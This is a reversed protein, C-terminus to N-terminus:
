LEKSGSLDQNGIEPSHCNGALGKTPQAFGGGHAGRFRSKPAFDVAKEGAEIGVRKGRVGFSQEDAATQGEEADEAVAEIQLVTDATTTTAFGSAGGENVWTKATENASSATTSGNEDRAM